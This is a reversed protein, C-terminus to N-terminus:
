FVEAEPQPKPSGKLKQRMEWRRRADVSWCWFWVKGGEPGRDQQATIGMEDKAERLADDSITTNRKQTFIEKSPIRDAATFTEALWESAAVSRKKPTSDRNVADDATTEIEGLWEVKALDGVSVIRYALGKREKGINLKMGVFLRREPDEPDRAFMHAARVANVWAVSGMVRMMADVRGQAKNLHTNFVLAVRRRAAWAALPSLLARLESNKHDDADGLYCTPPDIAVFRADTGLQDIARDLTKLDALTFLDAVETKLFAVRSLDAGLEILRPVLTDDPDDEGSVFLVRGAESRQGASDPWDMGRSIRATIDCLVFTKGLGGVGAFTTLKGLPIRGPWLWEVARPTIKNALIIISEGVPVSDAASKTEAKARQPIVRPGAARGANLGSAITKAIGSEGCNPDEALGRQRAARTLADTVEEASLFKGEVLSGLSYAAANLANNRGGQAGAPALLVRSIENALAKQVYAASDDSARGRWQWSPPKQTEQEPAPPDAEPVAQIQELTVSVIPEPVALLKVPRWPRDDTCTGKMSWGGPLKAIRSNNHVARDVAAKETGLKQALLYLLRKISSRVADTAPLDIRYLLHFGNGTDIILPAPWGLSALYDRVRETLQRAEEKEEDTASSNVDPKIPDIDLLLWRRRTVHEDKASRTLTVPIPNLTYYVQQGDALFRRADEVLSEVAKGSHIAHKGSPLARLEIGAEPDALIKLARRCEDADLVRGSPGGQARGKFM